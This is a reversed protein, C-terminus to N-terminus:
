LNFGPFLKRLELEKFNISFSINNKFTNGPITSKFYNKYIKSYLIPFYINLVNKFLSLQVGADYLFKSANGDGNWLLANTGLDFFLKVPISIPLLSLPNMSKPITSTLNIDGLWDDTKGVKNSLFDTKVKFAGDREMIQRAAFGDFENRGYFYSDYRYDEFGKPGSMNLHFRDTAFLNASPSVNTYIFKGAFFRLNIGGGNDYNFFQHATFSLKAFQKHLEANLELDYPYLVRKNEMGVSLQQLGYSQSPYSIILDNTIPERDFSLATESIYYSKFEIWKSIKRSLDLNGFVYKVSATLKTFPQNNTKGTSDTFNDGTFKALSGSITFHRADSNPYFTYDVKAIGNLLSSKTGYLPALLFQFKSPPLNYNHIAAGLMLGDYLNFGILPSYSIYKVNEKQDLNFLFNFKTKPQAKRLAGNKELLNFEEDLNQSSVSQMTNKFDLPTPHKYQWDKFYLRMGTKFNDSGMKDSLLMMWNAAKEYAILGYNNANFIESSTNIPQDFHTSQVTKLAFSYDDVSLKNSTKRNKNENDTNPYYKQEYLKDYYTNMGEDMWPDMRENNAIMGQFWNHGIEHNIVMDLEKETEANLVTITPYEMGGNKGTVDEVVKVTKYQYNGLLSNKAEISRKMFALVKSGETKINLAYYELRLQHEGTASSDVTKIFNKDAFWAFDHINNETFRYSTLSDEQQEEVLNGTAAVIYKSPLTITVDYKGFDAYFEGQDLYPMPHWGDKDYVAVKPFWQAVQYSNDQHGSRSFIKPLQVHFPTNIKVVSNPALATPLILKIIDLYLSHPEVKAVQSNVEFLLQNIYGKDEEKSFYFDTNGNKLQQESFATRDNKYANTWLHIWLFRLTDGSNNKYEITEVADLSNLQDDLKVTITYNAEQQWYQAFSLPLFGFFLCVFFSLKKM